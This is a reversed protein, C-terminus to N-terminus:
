IWASTFRRRGGAGDTAAFCGSTGNGDGARRGLWQGAFFTHFEIEFAANEGPRTVAEEIARRLEPTAIEDADLSLVWDGTALDLARQRQVGEGPWERVYFRDTYRRAIEETRDTSGSDVVVIEDAWSVSDLVRELLREANLTIMIVSLSPRTM